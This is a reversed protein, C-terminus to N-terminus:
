DVAVVSALGLSGAGGLTSTEETEDVTFLRLWVTLEVTLLVTPDSVFVSV